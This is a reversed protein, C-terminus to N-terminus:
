QCIRDGPGLGIRVADVALERKHHLRAFDNQAVLRRQLGETGALGLEDQDSAVGRRQALRLELTRKGKSCQAAYRPPPLPPHRRRPM